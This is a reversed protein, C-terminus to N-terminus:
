RAQMELWAMLIQGHCVLPETATLGGRPACWCGLVKGRLAHTAARFEPDALQVVLWSRYRALNSWRDEGRYPNGWRSGKLGPMDRGIYVEFTDFKINVLRTQVNLGPQKPCLVM